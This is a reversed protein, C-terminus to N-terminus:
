TAEGFPKEEGTKWWEDDGKDRDQRQIQRLRSWVKLWEVYLRWNAREYLDLRYRARRLDRETRHLAWEAWLAWALLIVILLIIM